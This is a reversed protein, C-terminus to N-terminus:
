SGTASGTLRTNNLLSNWRPRCLGPLRPNPCEGLSLKSDSLV